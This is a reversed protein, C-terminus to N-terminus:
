TLHLSRGIIIYLMLIPHPNDLIGDEQNNRGRPIRSSTEGNSGDGSSYFRVFSMGLPRTTWIKLLIKEYDGTARPCETKENFRDATKAEHQTSM